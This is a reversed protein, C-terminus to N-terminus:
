RFSLLFVNDQTNNCIYDEIVDYNSFNRQYYEEDGKYVQNISNDVTSKIILEKQLENFATNYFNDNLWKRINSLEYNNAYGTGGNHEFEDEANSAYFEQSDLNLSAFLLAKNGGETLINWKVPEYSFWYVINPLYGWGWPDNGPERNTEVPRYKTFYVGRFDNLGDNNTDVDKYFMYSDVEGSIYYNYDTWTEADFPYAEDLEDLIRDDEVEKQPYTGFYINSETRFYLYNYSVSNLTIDINSNGVTLSYSSGVEKVEGNISWTLFYGPVYNTATLTVNTGEEYSGTGTVTFSSNNTVSVNYTSTVPGVTTVNEKTNKKKNSKNMAFGIGAILGVVAGAIPICILIVKWLKM